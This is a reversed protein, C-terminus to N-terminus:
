LMQRCHPLGPNSGQTPFIGQLLFHCGVGPNKGPSDWPHLLRAPVTWPTTFFQVHSLTKVKEKRELPNRTAASDPHVKPKGPPESPSSDVQLAPSEPEIGPHPRDGPSLLPLESWFEQRSFEMSLPAQRAVAGPTLFLRVRSSHSLM